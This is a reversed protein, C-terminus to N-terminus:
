RRRPTLILGNDRDIFANRVYVLFREVVIEAGAEPMMIFFKWWCLGISPERVILIKRRPNVRPGRSM